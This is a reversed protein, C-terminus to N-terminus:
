TLIVVVPREKVSHMTLHLYVQIDAVLVCSRHMNPWQRLRRNSKPKGWHRWFAPEPRCGLLGAWSAPEPRTPLIHDTLSFDRSISWWPQSNFGTWLPVLLSIFDNEWQAMMVSSPYFCLKLGPFHLLLQSETQSLCKMSLNKQLTQNCPYSQYEMPMLSSLNWEHLVSLLGSSRLIAM